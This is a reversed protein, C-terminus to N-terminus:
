KYPSHIGSTISSLTINSGQRNQDVIQETSNIHHSTSQGSSRNGKIKEQKVNNRNRHHIIFLDVYSHIILHMRSISKTM